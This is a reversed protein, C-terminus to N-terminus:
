ACIDPLGSLGGPFNNTKNEFFYFFEKNHKSIVDSKPDCNYKFAVFTQKKILNVSPRCRRGLRLLVLLLVAVVAAAVAVVMVVLILLIPGVTAVAVFLPVTLPLTVAYACKIQM